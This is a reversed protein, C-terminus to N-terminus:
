RYDDRYKRPCLKGTNRSDKKGDWYHRDQGYTVPVPQFM